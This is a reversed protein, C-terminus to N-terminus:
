SLLFNLTKIQLMLQSFNMEKKYKELPNPNNIYDANNRVYDEYADDLYEHKKNLSDLEKIIFEESPNTELYKKCTRLFELNKRARNKATEDPKSGSLVELIQNDIEELTKM